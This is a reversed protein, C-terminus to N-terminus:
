QKVNRQRLSNNSDLNDELVTVNGQSDPSKEPSSNDSHTDDHSQNMSTNPGEQSGEKHEMDHSSKEENNQIFENDEEDLFLGEDDDEKPSDYEQQKNEKDEEELASEISYLDLKQASEKKPLMVSQKQGEADVTTMAVQVVEHVFPSLEITLVTIYRIFSIIFINYIYIYLLFSINDESGRYKAAKILRQSIESLQLNPEKSWTYIWEGVENTNVTDWLGDTAIIIYKMEKSPDDKNNSIVTHNVVEPINSVYQKLKYDGIARSVALIGEVRWVGWFLVKGGKSVIRDKEDPRNPKHDNTAIYSKRDATVVIGRSDGVHAFYLNNDYLLCICVTCGDDTNLQACVTKFEEDTKAFGEYIANPIDNPFESASMINQFLHEACYQSAYCGGHGDYVGYYSMIKGDIMISDISYRDEQYVRMNQEYGIGYNYSVRGKGNDPNAAHRCFAITLAVIGIFVLSVITLIGYRYFLAEFQIRANYFYLQMWAAVAENSM